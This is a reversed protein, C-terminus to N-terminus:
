PRRQLVADIYDSPELLQKAAQMAVGFVAQPAFSIFLTLVALVAVPGYLLVPSEVAGGARRSENEAPQAKWFAENWVKTMSYLTLLGVLLAVGAILYAEAEIGAKILAFKAFFGSLPPIGALSLAPILFLISLFPFARYLGGLRRLDYHGHIRNAIGAVLFLNTKV